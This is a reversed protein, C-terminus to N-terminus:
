TLLIFLLLLMLMLPPTPPLADAMVDRFLPLSLAFIRPFLAGFVKVTSPALDEV